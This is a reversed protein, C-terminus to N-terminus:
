SITLQYDIINSKLKIKVFDRHLNDVVHFSKHASATMVYLNKPRNDSKNGNIHHIVEDNRLQRKLLKEAIVREEKRWGNKTKILIYEGSKRKSGIDKWRPNGKGTWKKRVVKRQLESNSNRGNAIANLSKDRNNRLKCNNSKLCNNITGYSVNFLKALTVTSDGNVYLECVLSGDLMIKKM